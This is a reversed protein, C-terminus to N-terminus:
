SYQPSALGLDELWLIDLITLHLPGMSEAIWGCLILMRAYGWHFGRALFASWLRLLCRRVSRPVSGSVYENYVLYFRLDAEISCCKCM